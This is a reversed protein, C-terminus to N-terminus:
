LLGKSKRAEKFFVKKMSIQKYFFAFTVKMGPLVKYEIVDMGDPCFARNIEDSINFYVINKLFQYTDILNSVQIPNVKEKATIEKNKFKLSQSMQNTLNSGSFVFQANVILTPNAILNHLVDTYSVVSSDNLSIIDNLSQSTNYLYDLPMSPNFLEFDFDNLTNNDFTFVLKKLKEGKYYEINKIDFAEKNDSLIFDSVGKVIVKKNSPIEINSIKKNHRGELIVSKDIGISRKNHIQKRKLRNKHIIKKIRKPKSKGKVIVKRNSPSSVKKIKGKTLIRKNVKKLSKKFDGSYNSFDIDDILGDSYIGDEVIEDNDMDVVDGGDFGLYDLLEERDSYFDDINDNNNM